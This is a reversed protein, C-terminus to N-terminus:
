LHILPHEVKNLKKRGHRARFASGKSPAGLRNIAPRRVAQLPLVRAGLPTFRTVLEVSRLAGIPGVFLLRIRVSRSVTTRRLM